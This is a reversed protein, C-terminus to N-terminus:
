FIILRLTAREKTGHCMRHDTPAGAAPPMFSAPEAEEPALKPPRYTYPQTTPDPWARPRMHVPAAAPLRPCCGLTGFLAMHWLRLCKALAPPLELQCTACNGTGVTRSQAKAPQRPFPLLFGSLFFPCTHTNLLQEKCGQVHGGPMAMASSSTGLSMAFMKWFCRHERANMERTFLMAQTFLKAFTPSVCARARGAM